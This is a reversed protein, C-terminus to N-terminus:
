QFPTFYTRGGFRAEDDSQDMDVDEDEEIEDRRRKSKSLTQSTATAADLSRQAVLIDQYSQLMHKLGDDMAVCFRQSQVYQMAPVLEMGFVHMMYGTVFAASRENGTECFVLIRGCPQPVAVDNVAAYKRYQSLLHDNIIRIGRPLAAILESNSGVDVAASQIGLAEASKDGSLLRAAASATNRIVLLLTIGDKKLTELDRLASSPGLQLYTLIDQARRRATYKWEQTKILLPTSATVSTLIAHDDSTYGLGQFSPVNIEDAERPQPVYIHPPSPARWSYGSAPQAGSLHSINPMSAEPRNDEENVYWKQPGSIPVQKSM